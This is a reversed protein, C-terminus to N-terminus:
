SGTRSRWSIHAWVAKGSPRPDVGVDDAVVEVIAMGRGSAGDGTLPGRDVRLDPVRDDDDTVAIRTGDPEDTVILEVDDYAHRIANSLLESALLAIDDAVGAGADTPLAAVAFRRGITASVPQAPLMRARSREEPREDLVAALAGRVSSLVGRRDLEDHLGDVLSPADAVADATLGAAVERVVRDAHDDLHADLAVVLVAARSRGAMVVREGALKGESPATPVGQGEPTSAIVAAGDLPAVALWGTDTSIEIQAGTIPGDLDEGIEAVAQGVRAPPLRWRRCLGLVGSVREVTSPPLEPDADLLSAFVSTPGKRSGPRARAVSCRAGDPRTLCAISAGDPADHDHREFGGTRPRADHEHAV